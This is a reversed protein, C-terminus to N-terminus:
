SGLVSAAAALRGECTPALAGAHPSTTTDM